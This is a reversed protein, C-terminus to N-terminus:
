ASARNMPRHHSHRIINFCYPPIEGDQGNFPTGTDREYIEIIPRRTLFRVRHNIRHAGVIPGCVRVNMTADVHQALIRGFGVLVRPLDDLSEDVRHTPTFDHKCTSRGFAYVKDGLRPTPCVKLGAVHDERRDHFVM